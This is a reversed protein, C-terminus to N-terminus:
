GNPWVRRRMKFRAETFKSTPRFLPQAGKSAASATRARQLFFEAEQEMRDALGHEEKLARCIIAEMKKQIGRAFNPGFLDPDVVEVYEVWIGEDANVHIEEADQYWDDHYTRTSGEVGDWVFVRRVHLADFPTLYRSTYGFKGSAVRTAVEEEVINHRMAADEMEGEVVQPWQAALTRWELSGDNESGLETQGQALLAANIIGLRTFSTNAM